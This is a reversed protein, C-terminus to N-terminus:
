KYTLNHPNLHDLEDIIQLSTSYSKFLQIDLFKHLEDNFKCYTKSDSLSNYVANNNSIIMIMM